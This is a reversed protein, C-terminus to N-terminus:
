REERPESLIPADAGLPKFLPLTLGAAVERFVVEVPLDMRLHDDACDVINTVMKLGPQEALEVVALVYPIKDFFFPHFPQFVWTYTDLRGRGSVETPELDRSLCSRCSERPWHIYTGCRCCRLISLQHRLVSDWFFQTVPNPEPMLPAPTTRDSV